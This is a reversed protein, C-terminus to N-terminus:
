ACNKYPRKTLTGKLASVRQGREEAQTGKHILTYINHAYVIMYVSYMFQTTQNAPTFTTHM